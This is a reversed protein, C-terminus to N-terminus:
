DTQPNYWKGVAKEWFTMESDFFAAVIPLEKDIMDFCDQADARLADSGDISRAENPGIKLIEELNGHAFSVAHSFPLENDDHSFYTFTVRYDNKDLIKASFISDDGLFCMMDPEQIDLGYSQAIQILGVM